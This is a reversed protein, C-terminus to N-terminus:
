YMKYKLKYNMSITGSVRYGTTSVDGSASFPGCYFDDISNVAEGYHVASGQGSFELLYTDDGADYSVTVQGSLSHEVNDTLKFDASEIPLCFPVENMFSEVSTNRLCASSQLGFTGSGEKTVPDIRGNITLGYGNLTFNGNEDVNIEPYEDFKATVDSYGEYHNYQAADLWYGDEEDSYRVYVTSIGGDPSINENIVSSDDKGSLRLVGAKSEGKFEILTVPPTITFKIEQLIERSESPSVVEVVPAFGYELYSFTTFQITGQGDSDLVCEFESADTINAPVNKFKVTCGAFAPGGSFSLTQVENILKEYNEIAKMYEDFVDIRLDREITNFVAVLTGNYLNFRMENTIEDIVSQNLGGGVTWGMKVAEAFYIEMTGEETWFKNVYTEIENVVAAKVEDPTLDTNYFIPKLIKYWQKASRKMENRYYMTYGGRYIDKRDSICQEYMKNIAYDIFAVSAMSVHMVTSKLLGAVTGIVYQGSSKLATMVGTLKDGKLCSRVAQYASFALGVYGIADGFKEMFPSSYGAAQVLNYSIDNGFQNALGFADAYKDLFDAATAGSELPRLFVNAWEEPSLDFFDNYNYELYARRTNEEKVDFIGYVSFHNTLIVAEGNEYTYDVAEWKGTSENFYAAIVGNNGYPTFPIRIEANGDMNTIGDLKFDYIVSHEGSEFLPPLGTPETVTLTRDDDLVTPAFEITYAECSRTLKEPGVTFTGTTRDDNQPVMGAAAILILRADGAKIRGDSNYDALYRDFQGYVTLDASYRLVNRADDATIRGDHDTDGKEYESYSPVTYETVPAPETVPPAVPTYTPEPETVAPSNGEIYVNVPISYGFISVTITQKGSVYPNYGTIYESLVPFFTRGHTACNLVAVLGLCDGSTGAAFTNGDSFLIEAGDYSCDYGIFLQSWYNGQPVYGVGIHTYDADLINSRHGSSNLWSSMVEEPSTQGMALNEGAYKWIENDLVTQWESNDPRRHEFLQAAEFARDEALIIMQETYGLPPLNNRYREKNVLAVVRVTPPFDAKATFGALPLSVIMVAVALIFSISRKM